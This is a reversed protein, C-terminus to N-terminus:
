KNRLLVEFEETLFHEKEFNNLLKEKDPFTQMENLLHTKYHQLLKPLNEKDSSEIFARVAVNVEDITGICEFPKEKTNGTLQEFIEILNEDDFLDKNFIKILENKEIFPSLIIFTFLCKPCNGCWENTKSGANCSRFGSFHQLYKSFMKAIQLENLPRLFSFYNIDESIYKSLYDRFDKEFEM